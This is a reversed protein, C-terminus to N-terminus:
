GGTPPSRGSAGGALVAASRPHPTIGAEILRCAAEAGNEKQILGALETAKRRYSPDGLLASLEEVLADVSLGGFPLARAVGLQRVVVANIPQDTVSPIVLMPVGARLGYAITGIGGHHVVARARAFLAAYDVYGREIFVSGDTPINQPEGEKEPRTILVARCGLRASASVAVEHFARDPFIGASGLTFVVPASGSGLFTL